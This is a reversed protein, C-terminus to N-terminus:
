PPEKSRREREERQKQNYDRLYEQLAFASESLGGRKKRVADKASLLFAAACFHQAAAVVSRDPDAVEMRDACRLVAVNGRIRQM